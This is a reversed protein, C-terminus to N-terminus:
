GNRIVRGNDVRVKDGSRLGQDTQSRITQTTGDDLRVRIDVDQTSKREKEIHNGLVAGGVAGAVTAVDKGRGGGVQRGLLGGVVGGILAGAGSGEGAHSVTNVSEVVGCNACVVAAIPANSAVTVPSPVIQPKTNTRESGSDPRASPQTYTPSPTTGAPASVRQTALTSKTPPTPALRPPDVAPMAAGSLNGSAAQAAGAVMPTQPASSVRLSTASASGSQASPILGTLVGVGVACLVTVAIAAIVIMPHTRSLASASTPAFASRSIERPADEIGPM